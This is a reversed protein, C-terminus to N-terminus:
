AREERSVDVGALMAGLRHEATAGLGCAASFSRPNKFTGFLMDWLPLDAYNYRHVGDQHHICHSEPRQFVFGLWYPTEVNWHYVLEGLGTLLVAMSAAQPGLGCLLYCIASSLIGNVVVELPHKYFSTIIEIRQPSHHVQHLWRWLFDVEHRWRHWWYYIFTIVLYGFVAGGATGLADASFLRHRVMWGDWAVGALFVVGVQVGNLFLARAWWGAVRPWKRGPRAAEYCIMVIAVALVVGTILM